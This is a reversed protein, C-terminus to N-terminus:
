WPGSLCGMHTSFPPPSSLPWQICCPACSQFIGRGVECTTHISCHMICLSSQAQSQAPLDGPLPSSLVYRGLCPKVQLDHGMLGLSGRPVPDEWGAVTSYQKKGGDGPWRGACVVVLLLLLVLLICSLPLKTRHQCQKAATDMLVATHQEIDGAFSGM